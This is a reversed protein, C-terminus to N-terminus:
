SIKGEITILKNLQNNSYYRCILAAEDFFPIGGFGSKSEKRNKM